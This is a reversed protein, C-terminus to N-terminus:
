AEGGSHVLGTLLATLERAQGEGRNPGEWVLAGRVLVAIRDALLFADEMATTLLLIATGAKREEGLRRDLLDLSALDLGQGPDALLLFPRGRGLERSLLLRQRNGGSLASASAEPPSSPGFARALARARLEPRGPALWDRPSLFARELVLLNDAVSAPLVLGLGERDSPLYGLLSSRLGPRPLAGLPRGQLLIAGAEPERLGSAVAELAELGNGSLALVALCEGGRVEFDLERGAPFGPLRLGRAELLPRPGLSLSGPKRGRAEVLEPSMLHTLEGDSFASAPRDAVLRGDRLVAIRDVLARLEAVRHTIFVLAKGHSALNRALAFLSATEEGTLLTTPEDLLIIDGGWALVRLIEARRREAPGLSAVPASPDLNFLHRESLEAAEAIARKRDFLFGLRRPERGLALAEALSLSEALFSHQPVLGIGAAESAKVQGTRLRAGRVLIEGEDPEILGALVRALTSKGSGNEGVLGLIEGERLSLSIHDNALVGTSPYRKVLGRAALLEM